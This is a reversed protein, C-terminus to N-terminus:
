KKHLINVNLGEEDIKVSFQNPKFDHLERGSDNRRYNCKRWIIITRDIEVSAHFLM